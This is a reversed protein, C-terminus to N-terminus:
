GPHKLDIGKVLNEECYERASITGELLLSGNLALAHMEDEGPYIFVPAIFSVKEKIYGTLDPNHAMGGTILIAHVEGGLVAAMAGIEKSIQYAMAEQVLKAKMDGERAMKEMRRADKHGLYAYLGGKGALMEKVQELSEAEEFCYRALAGAPLTGSREPAFPGEGDLANNVDIVRGKRHAGVSIGSGLHAIVLNLEEYKMGHSHAYTRATSKQNLAHFISIRQFEPHGSLRAVDQLEDVVVPDTIYARANPFDSILETGILGGLNSAHEGMIGKRLDRIMNENVEYVGSEIPHILGGRSIIMGVQPFPIQNERVEKLVLEKRYELQDSIRPFRELDEGEHRITKLFVFKNMHYVAIKTSTAGPNIALIYNADM